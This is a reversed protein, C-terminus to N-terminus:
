KYINKKTPPPFFCFDISFWGLFPPSARVKGNRLNQRHGSGRGGGGGNEFAGGFTLECRLISVSNPRIGAKKNPNYILGPAVPRFYLAFAFDLQGTTKWRTQPRNTNSPSPACDFNVFHYPERMAGMEPAPNPRNENEVGGALSVYLNRCTELNLLLCVRSEAYLVSRKYKEM